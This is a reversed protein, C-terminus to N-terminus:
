EVIREGCNSCFSSGRAVDAACKPCVSAETREELVDVNFVRSKATEPRLEELVAELIIVCDSKSVRDDQDPNKVCRFCGEDEQCSCSRVLDLSKEFLERVKRYAQIALDIGDHVQDYIYWAVHDARAEAFTNFDGTDCPGSIVPFLGRLLRAVAGAGSSLNCHKVGDKMRETLPSLTEICVGETPLRHPRMGRNGPFQRVLDGSRSKEQVAVLRETVDFDAMKVRVSPYETLERIRRTRIGTHIVPTTLNRTGEPRLRVVKEGYLIGVVRYPRGGHLYIADHYAERLLHWSDIEGIKRGDIEISYNADANRVPTRMHPDDVYFIDTNLRRQNRLELAHKVHEGLIDLELGEEGDAEQIACALHHCIIRRNQLNVALPENYRSFLEEPHEAFYSNLPTDAAVFVIAGERGSRAVRGARQWLAMMTNPLGVCVVVDLAGIDIGIELATTSFVGRVRGARLGAEIEEREAAGLGARYVRILGDRTESEPIDALLREASVRSPCFTLCSLNEEVFRRTVIRGLQYHHLGSQLLWIKKRGQTSGDHSPGIEFFDLGTLRRLHDRPEAITASASVFTPSSGYLSCVARLRRFIYAVSSGFIGRYAHAEDVVVYKLNSFFRAWKPHYQLLAYHLMDPNTLVFQGHERIGLRRAKETAGDYRAVLEDDPAHGTAAAYIEQLKALQDNALAKQPYIFLSSANSDDLFAQVTPLIFILSKGSSTQTTIVTHRQGLVSQIGEFQHDYLGGPYKRALYNKIAPSLALGDGSAGPKSVAPLERQYAIRVDDLSAICRDVRDIVSNKLTTSVQPCEPCGGTETEETM